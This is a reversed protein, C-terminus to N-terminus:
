GELQAADFQRKSGGAFLNFVGLVLGVALLGGLISFFQGPDKQTSLLRWLLIPCVIAGLMPVFSPIRFHEHAVADRRLILVAVNVLTFVILLLAVTTDALTSVTGNTVLLLAIITTFIIAVYPTRRTSHTRALVEPIVGQRAMGYIVRSAMIMNLLATNTIAILAILSFFRPPVRLTGRQVVELLPGTTNAALVDPPVVLSATLSVLVYIVGAALLGGFLARPFIRTPEHTEEAMNVADEFGLLAYFAVAVGGFVLFFPNGEKFTFPRGVDGDGAFLTVAGVLIIILLGSLEVFTLAINAKVSESVGRFNIAALVLIFLAGILLTRADNKELGLFRDMYTGGFSRAAACASAIGSALVIFAIIFTFFPIKFAKNVYLPAGGAGPYKTVLEAYSAATLAALGLAVLFPLWIAGGVQGAVGGVRIYIGAGLIDGLVFFLLMRPSIRRALNETQGGSMAGENSRTAM